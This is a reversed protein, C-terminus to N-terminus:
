QSVRFFSRKGLISSFIGMLRMKYVNKKHTNFIILYVLFKILASIFNPFIKFISFLTGYHKKNFYYKSWMWHWNRLYDFENSNKINEICDEIFSKGTVENVDTPFTNLVISNKGFQDMEVGLRELDEKIELCMLIDSAGLEIEIPHLLKQASVEGNDYINVLEEFKLQQHARFVYCM